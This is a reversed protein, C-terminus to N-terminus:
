GPSGPPEPTAAAAAGIPDGPLHHDQVRGRRGPDERRDAQRHRRHRGVRGPRHRRVRRTIADANVIGQQGHLKTAVELAKGATASILVYARVMKKRGPQRRPSHVVTGPASGAGPTAGGAPRAGGRVMSGHGPAPQGPQQEGRPVSIRGSVAPRCAPARRAPTGRGPPTPAPARSCRRGRARREHDEGAGGRRQEGGPDGQQQEPGCHSPPAKTPTATSSMRAMTGSITRSRRVSCARRSRRRPLATVRSSSPVRGTQGAPGSPAPGAATAASPRRVRGCDVEHTFLPRPWRVAMAPTTPATPPGMAM